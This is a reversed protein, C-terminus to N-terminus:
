RPIGDLAADLAPAPRLINLLRPMLSSNHVLAYAAEGTDFVYDPLDAVDDPGCHGTCAATAVDGFSRRVFAGLSESPRPASIGFSEGHPIPHGEVLVDDVLALKEPNWADIADTWNEAAGRFVVPRGGYIARALERSNLATASDIECDGGASTKPRESWCDAATKGFADRELALAEDATAAIADYADRWGRSAAVHLANRNLMAPRLIADAGLEILM